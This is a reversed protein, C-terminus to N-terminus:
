TLKLTCKQNLYQILQSFHWIVDSYEFTEKSREYTTDSSIFYILKVDKSREYTTDSSIFHILKVFLNVHRRKEDTDYCTDIIKIKIVYDWWFYSTIVLLFSYFKISIEWQESDSFDIKWLRQYKLNLIFSVMTVMCQFTLSTAHVEMLSNRSEFLCLGDSNIEADKCIVIIVM